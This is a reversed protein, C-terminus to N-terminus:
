GENGIQDEVVVIVGVPCSYCCDREKKEISVHVVFDHHLEMRMM